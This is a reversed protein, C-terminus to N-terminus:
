RAGTVVPGAADITYDSTGKATVVRLKTYHGGSLGSLTVTAKSSIPSGAACSPTCSNQVRVGTATAQATGWGSWALQDLAVGGDGCTLIYSKPQAVPQRDCGYVSAQGAPATTNAPASTAPDGGGLATGTVASSVTSPTGDGSSSSAPSSAGTGTSGTSACGAALLAAATGVM